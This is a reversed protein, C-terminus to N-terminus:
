ATVAMPTRWTIMRFISPSSIRRRMSASPTVRRLPAGATTAATSSAAAGPAGPARRAPARARAPHAITTAPAGGGDFVMSRISVSSPQSNM